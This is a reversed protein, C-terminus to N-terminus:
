ECRSRFRFYHWPRQLGCLLNSRITMELRSHIDEQSYLPQHDGFESLVTDISAPLRSALLTVAILFFPMGIQFASMTITANTKTMWDNPIGESNFHTAVRDPLQGWYWPNQSVALLAIVAVAFLAILQSSM